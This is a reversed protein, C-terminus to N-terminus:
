FDLGSAARGDISDPLACFSRPLQYQESEAIGGTDRISIMEYACFAGKCDFGRGGIGDSGPPSARIM